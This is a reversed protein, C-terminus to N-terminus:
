VRARSYASAARLLQWTRKQAASRGGEGQTKRARSRALYFGRSDTTGTQDDGCEERDRRPAIERNHLLNFSATRNFLDRHDRWILLTFRTFKPLKGRAVAGGLDNVGVLGVGTGSNLGALLVTYSGPPPTAAIASELNNTPALGVATLHMAQDSDDQWDNNAALLAGNSDRLQLTPNALANAVGLAALSPGIGRVVIRDNGSFGGLIFGAIVIDDGTSVSARTSINVLKSNVGQNLDYVEVLAVGSTNGNGKLIATYAGPALTAEIASELDNTPPIGTAQIEAEQTDRWNNNTITTFGTPGHLELVPDALANPVGFGTLSPGIGRILVHKPATGAIIFGGIGVNDGTQVRMRTSINNVAGFDAFPGQIGRLVVSNPLIVIRSGVLPDSTTIDNLVTGFTGNVGGVATLLTVQDGARLGFGNLGVIHLTGSLNATGDVALLDYQGAGLGAIRIRLTGGANQTYTNNVSLTGLFNGTVLSRGPSVIGRNLLNGGITGHGGLLGSDVSTEGAGISGDM